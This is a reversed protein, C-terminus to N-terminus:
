DSESVNDASLNYHQLMAKTVGNNKIIDRYFFGSPKIRREQTAFDLEVLGFPAQEGIAWEFNDTFSWYYYREVPVQATSIVRLHKYIYDIRRRDDTECTGNETIWIPAKYKEYLQRCLTALGEPYVEWGLINADCDPELYQRFRHIRDRAYYNLGIFDYFNGRGLPAGSGLPFPFRGTMSAEIVQGQFIHSVLGIGFRNVPNAAYPDLIRIQHAAGVKVPRDGYIRHILRYAEIHCLALHRMVRITQRVSSKGPPWTGYYYGLVAYVNPENITVYQTCLDQLGKVIFSIYNLFVPINERKNFAGSREFWLPNSFHHLTVLPEIGRERLLILEDRYRELAAQDYEGQAPEIRSWEISLRYHRIGLRAMLETDEAYRNWHDAARLTNTNDAIKGPTVSWEYWSNNTDGGEIQTASAAAGLKLKAPLDFPEYSIM